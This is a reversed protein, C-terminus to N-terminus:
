SNMQLKDVVMLYQAARWDKMDTHNIVPKGANRLANREAQTTRSGRQIKDSSRNKM